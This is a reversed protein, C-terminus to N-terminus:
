VGRGERTAHNSTGERRRHYVEGEETIHNSSREGSRCCPNLGGGKDSLATQSGEVIRRHPELEGGRELLAGRWWDRIKDQHRRALTRAGRGKGAAYREV